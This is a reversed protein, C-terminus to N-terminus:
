WDYNMFLYHILNDCQIDIMVLKINVNTIHLVLKYTINQM